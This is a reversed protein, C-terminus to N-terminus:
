VASAPPTRLPAALQEYKAPGEVFFSIGEAALSGLAQPPVATEGTDWTKFSFRGALYGLARREMDPNSFRIIIMFADYGSELL